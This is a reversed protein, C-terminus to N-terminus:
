LRNINRLIFCSIEKPSKVQIRPDPAEESLTRALIAAYPPMPSGLDLDVSELSGSDHVGELAQAGISTAPHSSAPSSVFSVHSSQTGTSTAPHSSAPSNVFSVLSSEQHNSLTDSTEHINM